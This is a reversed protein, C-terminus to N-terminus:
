KVWLQGPVLPEESSIVTNNALYGLWRKGDKTTLPQSTAVLITRQAQAGNLATYAYPAGTAPCFFRNVRNRDQLVNATWLQGLNEPWAGFRDYHVLLSKGILDLVFSSDRLEGGVTPKWNANVYEPTGLGEFLIANILGKDPGTAATPAPQGAPLLATIHGDALWGLQVLYPASAGPAKGEARIDARLKPQTEPMQALAVYWDLAGAKDGGRRLCEAVALCIEPLRARPFEEAAIAKRFNVAALDLMQKYDTLTTRMTRTIGRYFEFGDSNDDNAKFRATLKEVVKVAEAPDGSRMLFGLYIQGAVLYAPAKLSGNTFIDQYFGTWKAVDFAEGDKIKRMVRDNVEEFGGALRPDSIPLQARARIAWAGTLALKGLVAPRAGRKEYCELAYAFRRQLPISEQSMVFQDRDIPPRGQSANLQNQRTVEHQLDQKLDTNFRRDVWEKIDQPLPNLFRGTRDDWEMAMASFYSTPDTVVYHEYESVNTTHQCGDDDGGMDYLTQQQPVTATSLPTGLAQFHKGTIPSILDLQKIELAGAPVLTVALLLAIIITPRM